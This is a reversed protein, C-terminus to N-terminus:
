AQFPPPLITCVKLAQKKEQAEALAKRCKPATLDNPHYRQHAGSQNNEGILFDKMVITNDCWELIGSRQSLPVVKYQRIQLRRKTTKPDNRLLTNMLGFVQQMVADQRLDDKGSFSSNFILIETRIRCGVTRFENKRATTRM